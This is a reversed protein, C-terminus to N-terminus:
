LLSHPSSSVVFWLSLPKRWSPERNCRKESLVMPVSDEGGAELYKEGDNRADFWVTMVGVLYGVLGQALILTMAVASSRMTRVRTALEM